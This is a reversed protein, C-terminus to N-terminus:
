KGICFNKFIEAALDASVSEGTIEGLAELATHLDISLLDVAFGEQLAVFLDELSQLARRLADKQRTTTILASPNSEIEGHFVKDIIAAELDELGQTTLASMLVVAHPQVKEEIKEVTIEPNNELLDAKNAIIITPKNRIKDLLKLDETTLDTNAELVYLILDARDLAFFSREVGLKEVEDATERIGATDLINLVVGGINVSEELTDRTTGPIATVIARQERLLANLLSSKGVNPRGIIATSIGERLIRGRDATALLEKTKEIGAKVSAELETYALEEVDQHEPYDITAEIHALAKLLPARLSKVKQSLHGELQSMGLRLATDTRARIIQIVAEAQTLDIRGNLFARKTFEGPEALEAGNELVLDLIRKAAVMGGHCNIEVVDERTFTNPERMISVLVEDIVAGSQDIIYGYNITHSKADALRKKGKYIKDVLEIAKDGSVRIIAIGGEGIATSIAAITEAEM